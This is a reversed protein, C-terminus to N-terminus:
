RAPGPPLGNKEFWALDEAEPRSWFYALRMRLLRRGAPSMRAVRKMRLEADDGAYSVIQTLDAIKSRGGQNGLIEPIPDLYHANVVYKDGEGIVSPDAEAYVSRQNEDLRPTSRIPALAFSKRNIITCCQSVVLYDHRASELVVMDGPQAAQGSRHIFVLPLRLSPLILDQLLDGQRLEESIDLPESAWM